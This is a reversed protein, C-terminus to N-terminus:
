GLQAPQLSSASSQFERLSRLVAEAENQSIELAFIHAFGLHDDIQISSLRLRSSAASKQGVPVYRLSDSPTASFTEVAKNLGLTRWEVTLCSRNASIRLTRTLNILLQGTVIGVAIFTGSGKLSRFALCSVVFFFFACGFAVPVDSRM